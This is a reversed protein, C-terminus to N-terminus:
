SLEPQGDLYDCAVSRGVSVNWLIALVLKSRMFPLDQCWVWLVSPIQELPM